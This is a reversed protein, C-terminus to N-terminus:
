SGTVIVVVSGNAAVTAVSAVSPDAQIDITNEPSDTLPATKFSLGFSAPSNGSAVEVVISYEIVGNVVVSVTVAAGSGSVVGSYLVLASVGPPVDIPSTLLSTLGTPLPGVASPNVHAQSSVIGTRKASPYTEPSRGKLGAIKSM